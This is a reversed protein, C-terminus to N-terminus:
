LQGVTIHDGVLRRTRAGIRTTLCVARHAAQHRHGVVRRRRHTHDLPCYGKLAHRLERAILDVVRNLRGKLRDCTHAIKLHAVQQGRPQLVDTRERNGVLHCRQGVTSGRHCPRNLRQGRAALLDRDLGLHARGCRETLLEDINGTDGVTYRTSAFDVYRAM